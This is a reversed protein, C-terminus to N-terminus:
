VWVFAATDMQFMNSSKPPAIKEKTCASIVRGAVCIALIVPITANPKMRDMVSKAIVYSADLKWHMLLAATNSGIPMPKLSHGTAVIAPLPIPAVVGVIIVDAAARRPVVTDDIHM